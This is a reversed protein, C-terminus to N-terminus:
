TRARTPEKWTVAQGHSGGRPRRAARSPHLTAERRSGGGAALRAIALLARAFCVYTVGRLGRDTFCLGATLPRSGKDDQADIQGGQVLPSVAAAPTAVQISGQPAVVAPPLIDQNLCGAIVLAWIRPISNADGQSLSRRESRQQATSLSVFHVDVSATDLSSM